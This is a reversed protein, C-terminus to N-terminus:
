EFGFFGSFNHELYDSFSSFFNIFGPKKFMKQTTLNFLMAPLSLTYKSSTLNEFESWLGICSGIDKIKFLSVCPGKKNCMRKVVDAKMWGDRSARYALKTKFKKDGM